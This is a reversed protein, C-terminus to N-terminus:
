IKVHSSNLRTSKRDPEAPHRHGQMEGPALGPRGIWPCRGPLQARASRGCARWATGEIFQTVKLWSRLGHCLVRTEGGHGVGATVEAGIAALQHRRVQLLGHILDSSRRTPFSHQHPLYVSRSHYY